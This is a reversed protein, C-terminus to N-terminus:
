FVDKSRVYRDFVRRITYGRIYSAVLFVLQLKISEGFPLGWFHMITFGILLGFVNQCITEAHSEYWKQAM